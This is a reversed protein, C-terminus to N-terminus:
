LGGEFFINRLIGPALAALPNVTVEPNEVEGKVTYTAAFLGDGSTGALIQGVIPLSGVVRNLPDVPVITGKIDMYDTALNIPGDYNLGLSGGAMRGTQFTLIDNEFYWKSELQLFAIGDDNLLEILGVPSMANLLRGLIPAKVIKYNKITLGGVMLDPKKVSTAGDIIMMGGSIKDTLGFAKLASGADPTEFRLQYGQGSEFPTYRLYVDGAGAMGDIELRHVRDPYLDIAAKAMKLPTSETLFVTEVDISLALNPYKEKSQKQDEEKLTNKKEQYDRWLQSANIARGKVSAKFKQGEKFLNVKVDTGNNKFEILDVSQMEKENFSAQGKITLDPAQININKLNTLATQGEFIEFSAQAEQGAPKNYDLVPITLSTNKLDLDIATWEEGSQKEIITATAQFPSIVYDSIDIDVLAKIDQASVQGTAKMERTYPVDDGFRETWDVTIPITNLVAEGVVTMQDNDANLVLKTSQLDKGAIMEKGLLDSIESSAKIKVESKKLDKILPFEASLQTIAQGSFKQPDFGFDKTLELPEQGLLNLGDSLPGEVVLNIDIVQKPQDFDSIEVRGEKITSDFVTGSRIDIAFIDKTYTASGNVGNVPTMPKLYDVTLEEFSLDGQLQDLNMATLDDLSTSLIIDATAKPVVGKSLNETIWKRASPALAQPWYQSLQDTKINFLGATAELTLRGNEISQNLRGQIDFKFGDLDFALQKMFVSGDNPNYSIDLNAADIALPEQYFQPIAVVGKESSAMLHFSLIQFLDNLTIELTGTLPADFNRASEFQSSLTALAKPNIQNIALNIKTEAENFGYSIKGRLTEMTDGININLTVIGEVGEQDRMLHIDSSPSVLTFNHPTDQYFIESNTITFSKLRRAIGQRKSDSIIELIEKFPDPGREQKKEEEEKQKKQINIDFKGQADRTLTLSPRMINVSTPFIRGLFLDPISLKLSVEDIEAIEGGLRNLAKVGRTHVSLPHQIGGWQLITSQISIDIDQSFRSLSSQLHRNLAPVEIPGQSLRWMFVALFLLVATIVAIMIELTLRTTRKLM